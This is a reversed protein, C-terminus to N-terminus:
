LTPSLSPFSWSLLSLVSRPLISAYLEGAMGVPLNLCERARFLSSPISLLLLPSTRLWFWGSISLELGLVRGFFLTWSPVEEFQLREGSFMFHLGDLVLAKKLMKRIM